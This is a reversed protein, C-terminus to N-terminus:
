SSHLKIHGGASVVNGTPVIEAAIVPTIIPAGRNWVPVAATSVTTGSIGTEKAGGGTLDWVKTGTAAQDLVWLGKCSYSYWPALSFALPEVQDDTLATSWTGGVAIDGVFFQSGVNNVGFTVQTNTSINGVTSSANEHVWTRAQYDYIHLRPTSTGAARTGAIFRWGSAANITTTGILATGNNTSWGLFNGSSRKLSFSGNGGIQLITKTVGDSATIRMIAALSSAATIQPVQGLTISDSTGNFTRAM